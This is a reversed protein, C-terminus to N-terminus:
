VLTALILLVSLIRYRRGAFARYALWGYAAGSGLFRAPRDAARRLPHEPGPTARRGQPLDRAGARGHGSHVRAAAYRRRRPGADASGRRAPEDPGGRRRPRRAGTRRPM